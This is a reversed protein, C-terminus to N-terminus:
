RLLAHTEFHTKLVENLTAIAAADCPDLHGNKIARKLICQMADMALQMTEHKKQNDQDGFNYKM